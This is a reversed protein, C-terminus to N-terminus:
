KNLKERPVTPGDWAVVRYSLKLPKGPEIVLPAVAQPAPNLLGISKVVHWTTPPNGPAAAVAVGAGEYQFGYWATDPWNSEPKMHNPAKLDIAGAPGEVSRIGEKRARVAFGSFAWKAITLKEDVALEVALDLMRLGDVARLKAQTRERVVVVDEAVWDNSIVVADGEVKVDRSVIRRGKTPAPQGWGWFDGDKAGHMEVWALFIGRHHVHDPPAVETLVTGAPTTLPHFYCGSRVYRLAEKGDVKWTVAEASVEVQLALALMMM